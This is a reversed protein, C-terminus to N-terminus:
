KRAKILLFDPKHYLDEYDPYKELLEPTPAPEIMEEIMFGTKVLTNVITSFTRHYKKVGDVFWRSEREGEVNYNSLNAYLKCGKDDRTWRDGSSFCTNIPNEQSFVFVGNEDLMAYVEKVLEEFDEVYHLALSSIAVDFKEEIQYIDEMPMQLYTISPHSNEEKAVKLMKESIDIGVVQVAGQQVYEMCHEGFGCGLDIVRKGKLDPMMSFLAPIEFLNNANAVNGRIGKYGEFFSENDYINQKAM